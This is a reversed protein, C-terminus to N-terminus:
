RAEESGETLPHTAPVAVPTDLVADPRAKKAGHSPKTTKTPKTPKTPQPWTFVTNARQLRALPVRVEQAPPGGSGTRVTIEEDSADVLTGRLRRPGAFDETTKVAVEQGVYGAFHRPYRLRRELGPSSVELTYRGAPVLDDLRDLIASITKTVGSISDLDVGGPREVLVRLSTGSREVDWIELGAAGVAPTLAETIKEEAGM